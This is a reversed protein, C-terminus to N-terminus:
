FLRARLERVRTAPSRSSVRRPQRANHKQYPSRRITRRARQFLEALSSRRPLEMQRQRSAVRPRPKLAMAPDTLPVLQTDPKSGHKRTLTVDQKHLSPPVSGDRLVVRETLLSVKKQSRASAVVGSGCKQSCVMPLSWARM